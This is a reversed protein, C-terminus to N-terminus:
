YSPLAPLWSCLYLAQPVSANLIAKWQNEPNQAASSEAFLDFLTPPSDYTVVHATIGLSKELYSIADDLYGIEDVLGNKVAQDATYVQGTALKKVGDYDLTDRNDDIVKRGIGEVLALEEISKFPGHTKRYAVIAEARAPGVGKLARDLTAADATNINVPDALAILPAVCCLLLCAVFSRM